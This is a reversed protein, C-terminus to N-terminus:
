TRRAPRAHDDPGPAPPTRRPRGAPAASARPGAAVSSGGPAAGPAARGGAPWQPDSVSAVRARAATALVEQLRRVADLHDGTWLVRVAIATRDGDGSRLDPAIMAELRDDFRGDRAAPDPVGGGDTLATGLEVFWRELDQAQASLDRAVAVRSRSPDAEGHWLELIADAGLRLTAAGNVLSVVDALGLRKPGREALYTRFTDDLRRNAAAARRAEPRVGAGEPIGPACCSVAYGVAGTVYRASEAYADALARGLAPGAGRPWFLLGVLLSTGGGLGIDEVRVFGIQTGAPAILNFLIFLLLTFSAQGATFSIAAPAVGAVLVAIPLLIWLLTTDTGVLSVVAAGLIFGAITGVIARAFTQGTSLANSRLISLTGLSVWFAHEVGTLRAVLVALGLAVGGRLANRASVSGLALHAGARERISSLPGPFGAPQRGLVRAAWSRSAAAAIVEVNGAVEGIMFGAESARFAPDLGSVFAEPTAAQRQARTPSIREPLEGLASRLAERAQILPGPDDQPRRLVEAARDLVTAASLSVARVPAVLEPELATFGGLAIRGTWRLEDVLRVEARAATTLGTPRYPTSLFTTGLTQLAEHAGARGPEDEIGTRLCGALASVATTLARALADVFPAPWLVTVAVVSLGGAIGWGALRDPIESAPASLSVPLIFGLLLSTTANALVASVVSAFIIGVGLVTMAAVALVTSGSCLTGVCVLVGGALVLAAQSRARDRLPGSFDVLLLMAISGFAAFTATVPNDIVKLCLAFSGPMVIAARLARRLATAGRDHAV